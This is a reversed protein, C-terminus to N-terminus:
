MTLPGVTVLPAVAALTALALAAAVAVAALTALALALPTLMPAAVRGTVVGNAVLVRAGM